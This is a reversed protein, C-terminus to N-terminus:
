EFQLVFTAGKNPGGSEVWIKGKMEAIYSACSHLGFGHSSKQTTLGDTFISELQDAPIGYGTDTIRIYKYQNTQEITIILQRETAATESMAGIANKILFMLTYFLKTKQASIKPIEHYNKIIQINNNELTTLNMKLVDEIIPIIDLAELTPHIDTYKQQATVMDNILNNKQDLRTIHELLGTQLDQFAPGLALYSRLLQKGQPTGTVFFKLENLKEEMSRNTKLLAEIPCTNMLDQLQFISADLSHLINRINQLIGNAIEAMGERHSQEIFKKYSKDLKNLIMVGCIAISIYLNLVQYVREDMPGPELLAYGIFLDGTHLLLANMTHIQNKSFLVKMLNRQPTGSQSSPPQIRVGNTYEFAFLCNDFLNEQTYINKFIFIYCSPINIKSLNMALSNFIDDLNFHTMLEQGIEQLFFNVMKAEIEEQAWAATKKEQLFVQAQQFLNEAWLLSEKKALVYPLLARRFLSVFDEIESFHQYNSIKKLQRQFEALFFEHSGAQYDMIFSKLLGPVDLDFCNIQNQLDQDLEHLELESIATLPKGAYEIKGARARNVSGPLCGCSDRIFIRGPEETALPVRGTTLLEHMKKCGYFGLERWPYYITTFSPTSLKGIEGDEYSVVAIDDPIKFGRSQLEHIIAITEDNYLSVVADFVIKREDLLITVAKRGRQTFDLNAIENEGIYLEPHYIGYENMVAIYVDKRDDPRLPAIYAIRKLHHETILHLLIKRIYGDGPFFINPIDEFWTGISLMPMAMFHQKFKKFNHHAVSAWGLFLLGDLPYQQIHKFIMNVESDSIDTIHLPFHGFRIVNMNYKRAAEFVGAMMQGHYENRANEDLFGITFRKKRPPQKKLFYEMM